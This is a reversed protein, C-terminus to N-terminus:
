PQELFFYHVFAQGEFFKLFMLFIFFVLYYNINDLKKYPSRLSKFGRTGSDCGPAKVVQSRGGVRTYM